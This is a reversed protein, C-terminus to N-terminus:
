ARAAARRCREAPLWLPCGTNDPGLRGAFRKVVVTIRNGSVANVGLPLTGQLLERKGETADIIRGLYAYRSSHPPQAGSANFEAISFVQQPRLSMEVPAIRFTVGGAGSFSWSGSNYRYPRPAQTNDSLLDAVARNTLVDEFSVAQGHAALAAEIADIGSHESRVIDGLLSVGGYNLALYMGLSCLTSYAIRTMSHDQRWSHDPGRGRVRLGDVFVDGRFGLPDGRSPEHRTGPLDKFKQYVLEEAVTSAMENIWWARAAGRKVRSQYFNVVHQFEHAMSDLIWWPDQIPDQRPTTRSAVWFLLREASDAQYSRLRNHRSDFYGGWTTNALLMHVEDAHEAPIYYPSDHPGWSDGFVATVWDFIDNDPGPRLFAMAMADVMSQNFCASCGWETDEVWLVFTIAGDTVVRRATAAVDYGRYVCGSLTCPRGKRM